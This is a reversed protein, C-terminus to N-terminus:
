GDQNPFEGVAHTNRDLQLRFGHLPQTVIGAGIRVFEDDNIEVSLYLHNRIQFSAPGECSLKSRVRSSRGRASNSAIYKVVVISLFPNHGDAPLVSFTMKVKM